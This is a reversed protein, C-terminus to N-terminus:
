PQLSATIRRTSDDIIEISIRVTDHPLLPALVEPWEVFCYGGSSLYEEAGISYADAPTEMRYCDFHYIEGVQSSQYVNIIAFTPSSTTETVGLCECLHKILTTKGAGMNADFAWIPYNKFRDLLERAVQDIKQLTYTHSYRSEM